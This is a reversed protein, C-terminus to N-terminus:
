VKCDNEKQFWFNRCHWPKLISITCELKIKINEYCDYTGVYFM